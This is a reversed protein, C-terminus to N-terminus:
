SESCGCPEAGSCLIRHWWLAKLKTWKVVTRMSVIRMSIQSVIFDLKSSFGINVSTPSQTFNICNHIHRLVAFAPSLSSLLSLLLRKHVVQKCQDFTIWTKLGLEVWMEQYRVTCLAALCAQLLTPLPGWNHCVFGEWPSASHTGGLGGVKRMNDWQIKKMSTRLFLNAKTERVKWVRFYM